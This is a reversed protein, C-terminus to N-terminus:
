STVGKAVMARLIALETDAHYYMGWDKATTWDPPDDHKEYVVFAGTPSLGRVNGEGTLLEPTAEVMAVGEIVIHKQPRSAQDLAGDLLIADHEGVLAVLHGNYGNTDDVSQDDPHRPAGLGISWAGVADQEEFTPARGLRNALMAYQANYVFARTCFPRAPIGYASLVNVTVRTAAICSNVRWGHALMIPRALECYTEIIRRVHDTKKTLIGQRLHALKRKRARVSQRSTM